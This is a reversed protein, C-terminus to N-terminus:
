RGSSCSCSCRASRSSTCGFRRDKRPRRLEMSGASLTRYSEKSRPESDHVHHRAEGPLGVSPGGSEYAPAVQNAADERPSSSSAGSLGNLVLAQGAQSLGTALAIWNDSYGHPKSNSYVYDAIANVTDAEPTSFFADEYTSARTPVEGGTALCWGAEAGTMYEIFKWAADANQQRRRNGDDM